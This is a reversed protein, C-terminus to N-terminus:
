SGVPKIPRFPKCLVTGWGGTIDKEARRRSPLSIEDRIQRTALTFAGCAKLEGPPTLAIFWTKMM